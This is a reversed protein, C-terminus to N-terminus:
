PLINAFAEVYDEIAQSKAETSTKSIVKVKEEDTMESFTKTYKRRRKKGNADVYNDYLEIPTNSTILEYIADYQAEGVDQRLEQYNESNYASGLEERAKNKDVETPIVKADGTKEYLDMVIQTVLDDEYGTGGNIAAPSIFQNIANLLVNDGSRGVENGWVDREPELLYSAGPIRAAITSLTDSLFNDGLADTFVSDGSTTKRRTPDITRALQGVATPISQTAANTFLKALADGVMNSDQGYSGTDFIETLGALMSMDFIENYGACLAEFVAGSKDSEAIGEQFLVGVLFPYSAPELWDFAIRTGFVNFSLPQGGGLESASRGKASEDEKGSAFGIGSLLMGLAFLMSGTVGRSFKNLTQASVKGGNKHSQVMETVLKTGNIILGAPSRQFGQQLVNAPTRVFPMALDIIASAAKGSQKVKQIANSIGNESHFVLEQAAKTAYNEVEATIETLNNSVMYNGAYFEWARAFMAKDGGAIKKGRKGKTVTQILSTQMTNDTFDSAKELLRGVTSDGFKNRRSEIESQPKDQYKHSAEAEAAEQARAKVKGEIQKGIDTKHWLITSAKEFDFKGWMKQWLVSTANDVHSLGFNAWNSIANKNWTKLNGLMALYRYNRWKEWGTAKWQEAASEYIANEAAQIEEPTVAKELTEYMEAPIEIRGNKEIYKTSFGNNIRAIDRQIARSRSIGNLINRMRNRQIALIKGSVSAAEFMVLLCNQATEYHGNAVAMDYLEGYYVYDAPSINLIADADTDAARSAVEKAAADYGIGNEGEIRARAKGKATEIKIPDYNYQADVIGAKVMKVEQQTEANNLFTSAAQSVKQGSDDVRSPTAVPRDVNMEGYTDLKEDFEAQIDRNGALVDELTAGSVSYNAGSPNNEGDPIFNTNVDTGNQPINVVSNSLKLPTPLQLGNRALLQSVRKNDPSQYLVGDNAAAQAILSKVNRGYASAVFNTQTSVEGLDVDVYVGDQDVWVPIFLPGKNTQVDTIITVSETPHTASKLVLVPDKIVQPIRQILEVSMEPHKYLIEGIKGNRMLLPGEPFGIGTLYSPTQSVYLDYRPNHTGDIVDEVQQAFSKATSYRAGTWDGEAFRQQIANIQEPTLNKRNRLAEALDRTMRMQGQTQADAASYQRNFRRNAFYRQFRNGMNNRIFQQLQPSKSLNEAVYMAVIEKAAQEATYNMGYKEAFNKQAQAVANEFSGYHSAVENLLARYQATNQATHVTEHIALALMPDTAKASLFVVGDFELADVRAGSIPDTMDSDTFLVPTKTYEAWQAVKDTIEANTFGADKATDYVNGLYDYSANAQHNKVYNVATGFLKTGGGLIASVTVGGKFEEWMTHPNIVAQTNPDSSYLSIRQTPNKIMTAKAARDIIGQMVEEGGEVLTSKVWNLVGKTNGNRVFGELGGSGVGFGIEVGAGLVSSILSTWTAEADTAGMAKAENYTPGLTTAVSTYFSPNTLVNKTANALTTTIAGSGAAAGGLTGAASAGGSMIAIITSPLTQAVPMTINENLIRVIDDANENSKQMEQNARERGLASGRAAEELFDIGTLALTQYISDTFGHIGAEASDIVAQWNDKENEKQIEQAQEREHYQKAGWRTNIDAIYQEDTRQGGVPMGSLINATNEYAKARSVANKIRDIVTEPMRAITETEGKAVEKLLEEEPLNARAVSSRIREIYSSADINKQSM